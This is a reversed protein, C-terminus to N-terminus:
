YGLVTWGGCIGWITCPFLGGLPRQRHMRNVLLLSHSLIVELASKEPEDPVILEPSFVM